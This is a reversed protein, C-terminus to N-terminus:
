KVFSLTMKHIKMCASLDVVSWIIYEVCMYISTCVELPFTVQSQLYKQLISGNFCYFCLILSKTSCKHLCAVCEVALQVHM